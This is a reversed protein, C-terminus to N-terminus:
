GGGALKIPAKVAINRTYGYFQCTCFQYSSENKLAIEVQMPSPGRKAM